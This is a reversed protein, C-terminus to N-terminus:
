YLATSSTHSKSFAMSCGSGLIVVIPAFVLFVTLLGKRLVLNALPNLAFAIPWVVATLRLLGGTGVRKHLKPFVLLTWVAQSVGGLMILLSIKSPPLGYGGLEIPTWFFVPM